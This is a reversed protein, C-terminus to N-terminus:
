SEGIVGRYFRELREAQAGPTHRALAQRRAAKGRVAWAEPNQWVDLMAEALAGPTEEVLSGTEGDAVTEPLIGRRTTITPIEMAMAELVARCSGDSGPVLFVLADMLSLVERYDHRRYGARVVAEELGLAEVPEELVQRARTGRGVVLLRLDPAARRALAFADLLLDFRRHPQLRAVVGLVRQTPALGLERLLEESRPLPCFQETDVAGPIVAVCGGAGGLRRTSEAIRESLVVLGPAMRRGLRVRHWSARPLPSGGHWSVVLPTDLSRMARWALLHDRTHHVHVLDYGEDRIKERLRRVEVRDRVPRYGRRREFLFEPQVGRERCREALAGSYGPPSAPCVVDVTHGRALLGLVANLMPEAPGTWKWDATAHLIKM